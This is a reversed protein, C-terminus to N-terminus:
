RQVAPVLQQLHVDALPHAQPVPQPVYSDHPHKAGKQLANNTVNVGISCRSKEEATGISQILIMKEQILITYGLIFKNMVIDNEHKQNQLSGAFAMLM